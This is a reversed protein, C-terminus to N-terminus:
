HFECGLKMACTPSFPHGVHLFIVEWDLHLSPAGSSPQKVNVAYNSPNRECFLHFPVTFRALSVTFIKVVLEGGPTTNMILEPSHFEFHVHIEQNQVTLLLTFNM